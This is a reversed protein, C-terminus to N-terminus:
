PQLLLRLRRGAIRVGLVCMTVVYESGHRCGRRHHNDSRKTDDNVPREGPNGYIV